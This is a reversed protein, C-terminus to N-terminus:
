GGLDTALAPCLGAAPEPQCDRTWRVSPDVVRQNLWSGADFNMRYTQGLSFHSRLIAKELSESQWMLNEPGFGPLLIDPHAAAPDLYPYWLGLHHAIEHAVTTVSFNSDSIYIARAFWSAELAPDEPVCAYGRQSGGISPVWLVYLNATGHSMPPEDRLDEDVVACAASPSEVGIPQGQADVRSNLFSGGYELHIGARNEEFVDQAALVQDHAWLESVSSDAPLGVRVRVTRLGEELGTLPDADIIDPGTTWAAVTGDPGRAFAIRGRAFAVVESVADAARPRYNATLKVPGSAALVRDRVPGTADEGQIVLAAIEPSVAEVQVEDVLGSGSDTVTTVTVTALGDAYAEVESTGAAVATVTATVAVQAPTSGVRVFVRHGDPELPLTPSVSWSVSHRASLSLEIPVGLSDRALARMQVTSGAAAVVESPVVVVDAVLQEGSVLVSARDPGGCGDACGAATLACLWTGLGHRPM